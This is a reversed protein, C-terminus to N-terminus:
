HDSINSNQLTSPNSLLSHSWRGRLQENSILSDSSSMTTPQQGSVGSNKMTPPNLQFSHLWRGSLQENSIILDSSSVTTLQQHSVNSNSNPLTSPDSLLSRSWRGSLQEDFIISDSSSVITPQQGSVDSNQMTPPNSQFSRLWRGSLQENSIPDSSSVTTPQTTPQQGSVYPNQWIFPHSSPLTPMQQHSINNSNQLISSNSPLIHNPNSIARRPRASAAAVSTDRHSNRFSSSCRSSSTNTSRSSTMKVPKVYITYAQFKNVTHLSGQLSENNERKDLTNELKNPPSVITRSNSLLQHLTASSKYSDM